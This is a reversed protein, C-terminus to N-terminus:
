EGDDIIKVIRKSGSLEAWDIDMRSVLKPAVEALWPQGGILESAVSAFSLDEVELCLVVDDPITVFVSNSLLSASKMLGERLSRGSPSDPTGVFLRQAAHGPFGLIATKWLRALENVVADTPGYRKHLISAADQEQQWHDVAACVRHFLINGFLESAFLPERTLVGSLGAYAELVEDQFSQDLKALRRESSFTDALVVRLEALRATEVPLLDISHGLSDRKSNQFGPDKAEFLRQAVTLRQHWQGLEEGIRSAKARLAALVEVRVGLATEQICLQGYETLEASVPASERYLPWLLDTVRQRLSPVLAKHRDRLQQKRDHIKKIRTPTADIQGNVQQIFHGLMEGAPKLRQSPRDVIGRVWAELSQELSRRDHKFENHLKQQFTLSSPHGSTKASGRGLREDLEDFCQLVVERANRWRRSTLMEKTKRLCSKLPDSGCAREGRELFMEQFRCEDLEMQAFLTDADTVPPKPPDTAGVLSAQSRASEHDDLGSPHGYLWRDIMRKCFERAILRRLDTRPFGLRLLRFCSLGVEAGATGAEDKQSMLALGYQTGRQLYIREALLQSSSELDEDVVIDGFDALTIEDFLKIGEEKPGVGLAEAGPFRCRPDHYQQLESLTVYANARALEKRDKRVSTAMILVCNLTGGDIQEEALIRRISLGVDAMCGGGTGGAIGAIVIIQFRRRGEEDAIMSNVQRISRRLCGLVVDANDILALRGLPRIGETLHSRPISFLWHRGLWGLLQKHQSRYHEPGHLPMHVTEDSTLNGAVEPRRIENLSARDTDLHLWGLRNTERIHEHRIGFLSKIQRLVNGAVGGVGVFLTPEPLGENSREASVISRGPTSQNRHRFSAGTRLTEAAVSEVLSGAIDM